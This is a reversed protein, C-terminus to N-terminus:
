LMGIAEIVQPYDLFLYRTWLGSKAWEKHREVLVGETCRGRAAEAHTAGTAVVSMILPFVEEDPISLHSRDGLEERVVELFRAIAATRHLDKSEFRNSM